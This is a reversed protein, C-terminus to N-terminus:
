MAFLTQMARLNRQLRAQAVREDKSPIVGYKEVTEDVYRQLSLLAAGVSKFTGARFYECYVTLLRADLISEAAEFEAQSQPKPRDKDDINPEVQAANNIRLATVNTTM